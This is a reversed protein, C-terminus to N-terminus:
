SLHYSLHIVVRHVQTIPTILHHLRKSGKKSTPKPNPLERQKTVMEAKM